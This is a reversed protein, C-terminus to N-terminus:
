EGKAKRATQAARQAAQARVAAEPYRRLVLVGHLRQIARIVDVPLSKSNHVLECWKDANQAISQLRWDNGSDCRACRCGAPHDKPVLSV